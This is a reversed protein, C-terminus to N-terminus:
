GFNVPTSVLVVDIMRLKVLPARLSMAILHNELKFSDELRVTDRKSRKIDLALFTQNTFKNRVM